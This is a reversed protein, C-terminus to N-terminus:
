YLELDNYLNSDLHSLSIYFITFEFLEALHPSKSRRQEILDFKWCINKM